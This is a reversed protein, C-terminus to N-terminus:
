KKLEQFLEELKPHNTITYSSQGIMKRITKIRDATMPHSSIFAPVVITEDTQLRSFLDTMGRPNIHNQIMLATGQEDAEREFQRSYSLSQLNHVNDGIVAMIGNVDSFVASIFIYGSLNRCLMKMSHRNNVHSVEHGILGALEDYNKMLDILGSYVIIDGNPLAFANVTGSSVVMFHLPRTNNLQLQQAFANLADTKATDIDNESVYQNLFTNGLSTDYSGPILMVAKEAVWPIVLLYGGVILGLILVAMGIYAKMGLHLLKYYWGIQGNNRLCAIFGAIFDADSVQIFSAKNAERRIELSDGTHEFSIEALRWTSVPIDSSEFILGVAQEDLTLEIKQPTSSIGDFYIGTTKHM